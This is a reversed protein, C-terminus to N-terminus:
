QNNENVKIKLEELEKKIINFMHIEIRYKITGIDSMMQDKTNKCTKYIKIKFENKLAKDIHIESLTKRKLYKYKEPIQLFQEGAVRM